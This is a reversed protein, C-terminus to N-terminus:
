LTSCDGQSDYKCFPGFIRLKPYLWVASILLVVQKTRLLSLEWECTSINEVSRCFMSNDKFVWLQWIYKDTTENFSIFSETIKTWKRITRIKTIKKKINSYSGNCCGLIFLSHLREHFPPLKDTVPWYHHFLFWPSSDEFTDIIQGTRNTFHRWCDTDTLQRTGLSSYM